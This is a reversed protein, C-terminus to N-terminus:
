PFHPTRRRGDAKHTLGCGAPAARQDPGAAIRASAGHGDGLLFHLHVGAKRMRFEGRRLIPHENKLRQGIRHRLQDPKVLTAFFETLDVFRAVRMRAESGVSAIRATAASSRRFPFSIMRTYSRARPTEVRRVSPPPSSKGAQDGSPPFIANPAKSPLSGMGDVNHRCVARRRCLEQQVAVAADLTVQVPGDVTIDERRAERVPAHILM